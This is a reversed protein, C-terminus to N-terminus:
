GTVTGQTLASTIAACAHLAAARARPSVATVNVYAHIMSGVRHVTTPVGASRLRESYATGEDHLPDFGSVGIYAPAVGTLDDALLPSAGPDLAHAPDSLYHNKFWRMHKRTLFFGEAFEQYSDREVSLDTAPNFLVQLVPPNQTNRLRQALVASINGGASDGAVVIRHPDVGWEYAHRIAFEWASMGDEIAAPYPHEPALRYDVSLVDAATHWALFRVVSETSNRDGLVWGGGHFYVILGRSVGPHARYRTAPIRAGKGPIMLQQEITFPAFTEGLAAARKLLHQRARHVGKESYDTGPLRNLLALALHIEPALTDGTRNTPANVALRELVPQPIRGFVGVICRQLRTAPPPTLTRM